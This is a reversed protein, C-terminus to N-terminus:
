AHSLLFERTKLLARARHSLENKIADALEAFTESFGEPVFLPDYGFGGSGRPEFTMAGDCVGECVNPVRGEPTAIAVACVFRARRQEAPVHVLESLLLRRRDADSAGAGPCLAGFCEPRAAWRKLRWDRIMRLRACAPQM